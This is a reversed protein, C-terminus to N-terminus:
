NTTDPNHVFPSTSPTLDTRAGRGPRPVALALRAPYGRVTRVRHDSMLRRASPETIGYHAAVDAVTVLGHELHSCRLIIRTLEDRSLRSEDTITRLPRGARHHWYAVHALLNRDAPRAALDSLRHQINVTYACAAPQSLTGAVSSAIATAHALVHKESRYCDVYVSRKYGAPHAHAVRVRLTYSLTDDDM